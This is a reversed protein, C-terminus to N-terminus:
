NLGGEEGGEGQAEVGGLHVDAPGDLEVAPVVVLCHELGHGGIDHLYLM